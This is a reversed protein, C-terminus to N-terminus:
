EGPAPLPEGEIEAPPLFRALPAPDDEPAPWAGTPSEEGLDRRFAKIIGMGRGAPDSLGHWGFTTALSFLGVALRRGAVTLEGSNAYMAEAAGMIADVPSMQAVAADLEARLAPPTSAPPDIQFERLAQMASPIDSIDTSM